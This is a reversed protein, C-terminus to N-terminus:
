EEVANGIEPVSVVVVNPMAVGVLVGPVGFSPISSEIWATTVGPPPSISTVLVNATGCAGAGCLFRCTRSNITMKM